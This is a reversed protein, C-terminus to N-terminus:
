KNDKIHAKNVKKIVNLIILLVIFIIDYLFLNHFINQEQLEPFISFLPDNSEGIRGSNQIKIIGNEWYVLQLYPRFYNNPLITSIVLAHEPLNFREKLVEKQENNVWTITMFLSLINIILLIIILIGIVLSMNKKQM